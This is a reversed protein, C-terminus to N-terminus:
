QHLQCAKSKNVDRRKRVNGSEKRRERANWMVVSPRRISIEYRWWREVENEGRELKIIGLADEIFTRWQVTIAEMLKLYNDRARISNSHINAFEVERNSLNTLSVFIFTLPPPSFSSTVVKDEIRERIELNFKSCNGIDLLYM